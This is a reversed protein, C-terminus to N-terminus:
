NAPTLLQPKLYVNVTGGTIASTNGSLDTYYDFSTSQRSYTCSGETDCNQGADFIIQNLQGTSTTIDCRYVTGSITCASPSNGVEWSYLADFATGAESGQLPYYNGDWFYIYSQEVIPNSFSALLTYEIAVYAAAADNNPVQGQNYGFEGDWLPYDLIGLDTMAAVAAQYAAMVQTPDQNNASTGRMHENVIDYTMQGTVTQAPWTCGNISGAPASITTNSYNEFWTTATDVHFSPSVLKVDPNYCRLINREDWAMRVLRALSASSGGCASVASTSCWFQSDAENWIEYYSISTGYRQAITSIFTQFQADTGTGDSNVDKPPLCSADASSNNTNPCKTGGGYGSTVTADSVAQSASPNFTVENPNVYSAVTVRLTAGSPGAGPIEFISGVNAAFFPSDTATLENLNSSPVAGTATMTYTAPGPFCSGPDPQGDCVTWWVPTAGFTYFVKMEQGPALTFVLDDLKSWNYTGDTNQTQNIKVGDDWARLGTISAESGNGDTAPWVLPPIDNFDARFLDGSVAPLLVTLAASAFVGNPATATIHATGPSIATALGSSNVTAVSAADSSWTFVIGAIPSNNADDATAVFQQAQGSCLQLSSPAIVVTAVPPAPSVPLVPALIHYLATATFGQTQGSCPQGSPPGLVRVLSPSEIGSTSSVTIRASPMGSLSTTGISSTDSFRTLAVGNIDTGDTDNASATFQQAQGMLLSASSPSINVTYSNAPTTSKGVSLGACSSLLSIIALMFVAEALQYLAFRDQKGARGPTCKGRGPQFIRDRLSRNIRTQSQLVQSIRRSSNM